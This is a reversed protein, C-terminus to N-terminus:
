NGKMWLRLIKYLIDNYKKVRVDSMAILPNSFILDNKIYVQLEGINEGKYVPAKIKKPIILNFTVIENEKLTINIDDKTMLGVKDYCGNQVSVTTCYKNKSIIPTLKYNVFGYNLLTFSDSFHNDIGLVISLLQLNNRGASAVLCKGANGTYGTKIGNTGEFEWLLRNTNM